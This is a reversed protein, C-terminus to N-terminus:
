ISVLSRMWSKAQQVSSVYTKAFIDCSEIWQETKPALIDISNAILLNERDKDNLDKVYDTLDYGYNKMFDKKEIGTNFRVLRGMIQIPSETHAGEKDKNDTPRLFVLSSLTSVNMGMKGKQKVIVIRLPDNQDILKEKIEDENDDTGAWPRASSYTGTEKDDCTMVAVTRARKEDLANNEIIDLFRKKVYDTNLGTAANDNGVSVLMTKKTDTDIYLKVVAAEIKNWLDDTFNADKPDYYDISSLWATTNILLEKPPFENVITIKMDGYPEVVGRAERNPTATLGFIYPTKVSLEQLTKFLRAEYAPTNHGTTAKYNLMHSVMWAHAEDVWIAFNKSTKQLYKVLEGGKDGVVFGQHTTTLIVKGGLKLHKLAATPDTCLQVGRSKMQAIIWESEDKIETLPYTYIILDMDHNNFLHPVFETATTHTKGQGTMGVLLKAEQTRASFNPSDVLDYFPKTLFDSASKKVIKPLNSLTAITM